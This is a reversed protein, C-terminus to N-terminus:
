FLEKDYYNCSTYCSKFGSIRWFADLLELICLILIGLLARRLVLAAFLILKTLFHVWLVELVLKSSTKIRWLARLWMQHTTSFLIHPKVSPRHAPVAEAPPHVQRSKFKSIQRKSKSMQPEGAPFPFTCLAGPLSAFKWQIVSENLNSPDSVDDLGVVLGDGGYCWAM